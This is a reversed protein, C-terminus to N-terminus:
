ALCLLWARRSVSEGRYSSVACVLDDRTQTVLLEKLRSLDNSSCDSKM